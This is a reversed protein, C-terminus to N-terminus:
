DGRTGTPAEQEFPRADAIAERETAVFWSDEPVFGNTWIAIVRRLHERPRKKHQRWDHVVPPEVGIAKAADAQSIDNDALFRHFLRSGTTVM